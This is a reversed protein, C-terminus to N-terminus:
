GADLVEWGAAGLAARAQEALATPVLLEVLGRPRGALHEVRVDEVNVGAEAACVLVGALEGPRDSVAVVVTAAALSRGQKLPLRGRGERGRQLLDVLPAELDLQGGAKVHAAQALVEAVRQLDQALAHVLPALHSANRLLVDVWLHPDSAAVRTVDQVGPGALRLPDFSSPPVGDLLRAAVASSALQPLHSVLAVAADHEEATTVLPVAGCAKALAQVAQVAEPSTAQGPCAVWPRDVFLRASAADPGSRERGAMPHSGCVAALRDVAVLTEVEAQVASQQSAVHSFTTALDRGVGDAIVPAIAHPPACLLLLDAREAGDWRRGAGRAV